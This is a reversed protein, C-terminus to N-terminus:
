CLSFYLAVDGWAGEERETVPDPLRPHWGCTVWPWRPRKWPRGAELSTGRPSLFVAACEHLAHGVPNCVVDGRSRVATSIKGLQTVETSRGRDRVEQRLPRPLEGALVLRGPCFQRVAVEHANGVNDRRCHHPVKWVRALHLRKGGGEANTSNRIIGSIATIQLQGAPPAM